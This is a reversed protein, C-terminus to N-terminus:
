GLRFYVVQGCVQLDEVSHNYSALNDLFSSQSNLLPSSQALLPSLLSSTSTAM